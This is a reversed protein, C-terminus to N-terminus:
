VTSGQESSVLVVFAAWANLQTNVHQQGHFQPKDQPSFPTPNAWCVCAPGHM